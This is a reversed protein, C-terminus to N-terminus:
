LHVSTSLIICASRSPSRAPASVGPPPSDTREATSESDAANSGAERAATRAGAAPAGTTGAPTPFATALKPRVVSTISRAAHFSCRAMFSAWANTARPTDSSDPGSSETETAAAKPTNKAITVTMSRRRRQVRRLKKAAVRREAGATDGMAALAKKLNAENAELKGMDMKSM